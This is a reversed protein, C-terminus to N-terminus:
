LRPGSTRHILSSMFQSTGSSKTGNIVQQLYQWKSTYAIVQHLLTCYSRLVILFNKAGCKIRYLLQNLSNPSLIWLAVILYLNSLFSKVKKWLTAVPQASTEQYAFLQYNSIEALTDNLSMNWSLVIGAFVIDVFTVLVVWETKLIIKWGNKCSIWACWISILFNLLM